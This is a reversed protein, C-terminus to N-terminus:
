RGGAGGRAHLSPGHGQRPGGEGGQQRDRAAKGLEHRCIWAENERGHHDDGRDFLVPSAIITFVSGHLLGCRASVTRVRGREPGRFPQTVASRTSRAFITGGTPTKGADPCKQGKGPCTEGGERSGSREAATSSLDSGACVSGTPPPAGTSP